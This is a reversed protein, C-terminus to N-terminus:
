ITVVLAGDKWEMHNVTHGVVKVVPFGADGDRYMLSERIYQIKDQAWHWDKVERPSDNGDIAFRSDLSGILRTLCGRLRFVENPISAVACHRAEYEARLIDCFSQLIDKPANHDVLWRVMNAIQKDQSM